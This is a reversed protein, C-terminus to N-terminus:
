ATQRLDGFYTTELVARDGDSTARLRFPPDLPQRSLAPEHFDLEFVDAGVPRLGAALDPAREPSMRLGGAVAEIRVEGSAPNEYLGPQLRASITPGSPFGTEILGREHELASAASATFVAPWNRGEGWALTELLELALGEIAPTEAAAMVMVGADKLPALAMAHRWGRGGGGHRLLPGDRLRSIALGMGYAAWGDGEPAQRQDAVPALARPRAMDRVGASLDKRDSGRLAALLFRVWTGADQAPMFIRASGESNAGTLEPVRVMRGMMPMQPEAADAPAPRSEGASMTLPMGLPACVMDRVLDAYPRGSLREAALALAIYSLNSYSFRDRFPAVLGIHRGHELRANRPIDQRIGWEALGARGLGVRMAALDRFTCLEAFSADVPLVEPVIDRVPADWDAAGAQVLAAFTAATFTKSCSCIHFPTTATVDQGPLAQGSTVTWVHDGRVMVVAAAGAKAETLGRRAHDAMQDGSPSTM